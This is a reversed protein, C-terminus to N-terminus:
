TGVAMEVGATAERTTAGNKEIDLLVRKVPL